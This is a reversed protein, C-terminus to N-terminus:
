DHSRFLETAVEGKELALERRVLEGVVYGMSVLQGLEASRKLKLKRLGAHDEETLEIPVRKTAEKMTVEM